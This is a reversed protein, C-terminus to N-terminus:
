RESEETSYFYVGFRVRHHPPSAQAAAAADLERREVARTILPRVAQSWAKVAARQLQAVSEASLDGAYMAQELFNADDQLNAVAAAAHDGVNAALLETM